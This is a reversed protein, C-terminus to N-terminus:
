ATMNEIHKRIANDSVGLERGLASYNSESLRKLLEDLPPWDIKTPQCHKGACSKCRTSQRTIPIGCDSCFRPEPKIAGRRIKIRETETLEERAKEFRNFGREQAELEEHIEGHCNHCLLVCKDLEEVITDWSRTRIDAISTDKESPDIHHFALCRFSKDYDCRSCKGGLYEVAMVKKKYRQQNTRCSACLKLSHGSGRFHTYQNGCLICTLEKKM